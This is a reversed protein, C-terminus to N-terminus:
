ELSRPCGLVKPHFPKGPKVNGSPITILTGPCPDLEGPLMISKDFAYLPVSRTVRGLLRGTASKIRATSGASLPIVFLGRGPRTWRSFGGGM